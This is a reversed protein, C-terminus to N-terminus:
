GDVVEWMGWGCFLSAAKGTETGELAQLFPQNLKRKEQATEYIYEDASKLSSRPRGLM